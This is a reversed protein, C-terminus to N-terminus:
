PAPPTCKLIYTDTDAKPKGSSTKGVVRIKVKSAVKKRAKGKIKLPVTIASSTGCATTTGDPPTLTGASPPIIKVTPPGTLSTSSCGAVNTQNACVAVTFVCADNAIGDTDCGADGDTCSVIHNNLIGTTSGVVELEVYCDSKAPGAGLVSKRVPGGPLTTTTTAGFITTTTAGPTTTTTTTCGSGFCAGANNTASPPALAFDAANNQTDGVRTLSLTGDGPPQSTPTGAFAPPAVMGTGSYSGYAVCDVYQAPNSAATPKGWCVMGCPYRDPPTMPGTGITFDPTIGAAAAFTDSAMLWHAGASGNAVDANIAASVVTSGDCKFFAIRSGNVDNQGASRMRIEVFEVGTGGMGNIGSMVEDIVSDQFAWALAPLLGFLFVTVRLLAM